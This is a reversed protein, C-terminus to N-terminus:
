SYELIYGLCTFECEGNLVILLQDSVTRLMWFTLVTKFNEELLRRVEPTNKADTKFSHEQM